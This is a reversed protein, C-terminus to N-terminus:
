APIIVSQYMLLYNAAVTGTVTVTDGPRIPPMSALGVPINSAATQRFVVWTGAGGKPQYSIYYTNTSGDSDQIAYPNWVENTTSNTLAVTTASGVRIFEKARTNFQNNTSVLPIM